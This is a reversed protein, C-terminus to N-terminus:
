RGSLAPRLGERTWPLARGLLNLGPTPCVTVHLPHAEKRAFRDLNRLPRSVAELTEATCPGVQVM